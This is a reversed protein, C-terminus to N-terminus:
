RLVYLGTFLYDGDYSLDAASITQVLTDEEYVQIEEVQYWDNRSSSARTERLLILPTRDGATHPTVTEWFETRNKEWEWLAAIDVTESRRSRDDMEWCATVTGTEEQIHLEVWDRGPRLDFYDRATENLSCSYSSWHEADSWFLNLYGM